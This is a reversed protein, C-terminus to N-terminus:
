PQEKERWGSDRIHGWIADCTEAVLDMPEIPHPYGCETAVTRIAVLLPQTSLSRNLRPAVGRLNKKFEHLEM